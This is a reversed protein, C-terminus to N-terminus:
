VYMIIMELLTVENPLSAIHGVANVVHAVDMLPESRVSGDGQLTGKESHRAM